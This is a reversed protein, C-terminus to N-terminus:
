LAKFDEYNADLCIGFRAKLMEMYEPGAEINQLEERGDQILRLSHNLLSTAGGPNPLHAVRFRVFTSHPHTETFHNSMQIDAATVIGTDFSYVDQWGEQHEIQLLNGFGGDEILRFHFGDQVTMYGPELPMPARLGSAGFGVDVIFDRGRNRVLTILHSRGTVEGRRRVRALASRAEFGFALLATRMLTNLEFCYGGRRGLVIKHFLSRPHLDLKRGLQIDMNEFPIAFLQARCLRTLGAESVSIPGTLNIRELYVEWDFENDAETMIM